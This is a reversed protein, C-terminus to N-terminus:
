IKYNKFLSFFVYFKSRNHDNIREFNESIETKEAGIGCLEVRPIRVKFGKFKWLFTVFRRHNRLYWFETHEQPKPFEVVTYVQSKPHALTKVKLTHFPVKKSM